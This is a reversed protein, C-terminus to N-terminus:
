DKMTIWKWLDSYTVKKGYSLIGIRYIKSAVYVSAFFTIILLVISVILEILPVGFSIRMLMVIPSTFPILSLVQSISGNPETIIAQTFIMAIILPITLPLTFQQMDTDNDVAAGIAAFLSGYLLYGGVFYFLFVLVFVLAESSKLFSLIILVQQLNSMLVSSFISFIIVLLLFIWIFFQTFAVLAVGIIKGMLLQFPKISSVLIEVIRDKKEEMAGRMLMSGYMFIFMYVIFAGIYSLVAYVEANSKKFSKEDMKYVIAEIKKNADEIISKDLNNEALFINKSVNSVISSIYEQFELSIANKSFIFINNQPNKPIKVIAYFKGINKQIDATDSLFTFTYNDNGIFADSFRGDLDIIAIHRQEIKQTKGLYIPIALILAFFIPTLLTILIFSKKRVRSLYERKIIISIKSM